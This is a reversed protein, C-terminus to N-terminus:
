RRGKRKKYAQSEWVRKLEAYCEGNEKTLEVELAAMRERNEDVIWLSLNGQWIRGTDEPRDPAVEWEIIGGRETIFDDRLTIFQRNYLYNEPLELRFTCKYPYYHFREMNDFYDNSDFDELTDYPQKKLLIREGEVLKQWGYEETAAYVVVEEGVFGPRAFCLLSLLLCAALVAAPIRPALRRRNRKRSKVGEIIREKASADTAIRHGAAYLRKELDEELVTQKEDVMEKGNWERDEM